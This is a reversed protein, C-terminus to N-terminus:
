IRMFCDKALRIQHKPCSGWVTRICIFPGDALSFLLRNRGTLVIVVPKLRVAVCDKAVKLRPYFELRPESVRRGGPSEVFHTFLSEPVMEHFDDYHRFLSLSSDYQPYGTCEDEKCFLDDWTDNKHSDAVNNLLHTLLMHDCLEQQSPFKDVCGHPCTLEHHSARHRLLQQSTVFGKHCINCGLPKTTSHSWSHVELHSQRYFAKGCDPVPCLFPRM